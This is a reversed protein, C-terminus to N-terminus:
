DGFAAGINWVPVTGQRAGISQDMGVPHTSHEPFVCGVCTWTAQWGHPRGDSAGVTRGCLTEHSSNGVVPDLAVVQDECGGEYVGDPWGFWVEDM